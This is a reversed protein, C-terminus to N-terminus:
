PRPELFKMLLRVLERAEASLRLRHEPFADDARLRMEIGDNSPRVQVTVDDREIYKTQMLHADPQCRGHNAGDPVRRELRGREGAARRHLPPISGPTTYQRAINIQIGGNVPDSKSIARRGPGAACAGV